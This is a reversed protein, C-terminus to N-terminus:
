KRPLPTDSSMSTFAILATAFRPIDTSTRLKRVLKSLPRNALQKGSSPPQSTTTFPPVSCISGSCITETCDSPSSMTREAVFPQSHLAGGAREKQVCNPAPLAQLQGDTHQLGSLSGWPSQHKSSSMVHAFSCLDRQGHTYWSGASKAAGPRRGSCRPAERSTVTFCSPRDLPFYSHPCSTRMPVHVSFLQGLVARGSLMGSKSLYPEFSPSSDKRSFDGSQYWFARPEWMIKVALPSM